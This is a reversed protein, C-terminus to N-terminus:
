SDPERVILERIVIETKRLAILPVFDLITANALIHNLEKQYLQRIIELSVQGRCGASLEAIADELSIKKTVAM